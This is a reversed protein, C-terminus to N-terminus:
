DSEQSYIARDTNLAYKIINWIGIVITFTSDCYAIKFTWRHIGSRIIHRLYATIAELNDGTQKVTLISDDKSLQLKTSHANPDFSEKIFFYLLIWHSVLTPITYYINDKPLMSQVHKIFGFVIDKTSIDIHKVDELSAM